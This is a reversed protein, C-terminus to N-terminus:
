ATRQGDNDKKRESLRRRLEAVDLKEPGGSELAERRKKAIQAAHQIRRNRANM